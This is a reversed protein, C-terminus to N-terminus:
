GKTKKANCFREFLYQRKSLMTSFYYNFLVTIQPLMPRSKDVVRGGLGYTKKRRRRAV